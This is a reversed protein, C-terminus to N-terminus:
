GLGGAAVFEDRIIRLQERVDEVTAGEIPFHSRGHIDQVSWGSWSGDSEALTVRHAQAIVYAQDGHRDVHDTGTIMDDPNGEGVVLRLSYGTEDIRPETHIPPCGGILASGAYGTEYAKYNRVGTERGHKTFYIEHGDFQDVVRFYAVRKSAQSWRGTEPNRKRDIPKGTSQDIIRGLKSVGIITQVYARSDAIRHPMAGQHSTGPEIWLELGTKDFAHVEYVISEATEVPEENKATEIDEHVTVKLNSSMHIMGNYAEDDFGEVTVVMAWSGKGNNGRKYEATLVTRPETTSLGYINGTIRMGPKINKATIKM